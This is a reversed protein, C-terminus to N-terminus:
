RQRHVDVLLAYAGPCPRWPSGTQSRRAAQRAAARRIARNALYAKLASISFKRHFHLKM